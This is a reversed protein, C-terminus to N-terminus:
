YCCTQRLLLIVLSFLGCRSAAEMKLNRNAREEVNNHWYEEQMVSNGRVDNDVEAIRAFYSDLAEHDPTQLLPDVVELVVCSYLDM